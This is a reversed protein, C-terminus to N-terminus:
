KGFTIQWTISNSLCGNNGAAALRIVANVAAMSTSFAFAKTNVFGELDAVLNQLADRTPNGSRTYDYEGFDTAGVRVIVYL